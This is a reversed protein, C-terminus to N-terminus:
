NKDIVMDDRHILTARGKFGLIGELEASKRGIIRLADAANYASLGKGMIHGDADKILVADGREFSGEVATVGAPLLSKGSRLAEAAGADVTLVGAPHLGGAIWRKRARKPSEAAIFWTARANEQLRTLPHMEMGSAIAMHCGSALAIKAAELKTAMGGTGIHSGAGAAMAEIEPTVAEVKEIFRAAPNRRPDAAYLGDIDSFLVLCDASIMQAIRASLRDNDGFRLEATAVTDNENIVPIVRNSALLMELTTRANLYRRRNISDDATLLIQAPYLSVIALAQAWFSFLAIQGCAAAAQKEELTLARVDYGLPNRGLAVAGSTVIAVQKGARRLAAVDEALTLLWAERLGSREDILLSSGIKIVIRKANNLM